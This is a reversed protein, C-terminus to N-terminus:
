RLEVINLVIPVSLLTRITMVQPTCSGASTIVLGARSISERLECIERQLALVQEEALNRTCPWCYFRRSVCTFWSGIAFSSIGVILCLYIHETLVVPMHPSPRSTPGADTERFHAEDNGHLGAHESTTAAFRKSVATSHINDTPLQGGLEQQALSNLDRLNSAILLIVQRVAVVDDNKVDAPPVPGAGAAHSAADERVANDITKDMTAM